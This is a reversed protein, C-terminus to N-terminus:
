QALPELVRFGGVRQVSARSYSYSIGPTLGTDHYSTVNAGVTAIQAWTGSLAARREIKFGQEDSSNDRWSLDIQTSSVGTDILNSPPAPPGAGSLFTWSCYAPDLPNTARDTVANGVTLTYTAGPRQDSTTLRYQTDTVRTAALILLLGTCTYNSAQDAGVVTENFTL